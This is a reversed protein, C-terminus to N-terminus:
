LAAILGADIGLGSDLHNRIWVYNRGTYALVRNELAPGSFARYVVGPKAARPAEAREAIARLGNAGANGNTLAEGATEWFSATKM